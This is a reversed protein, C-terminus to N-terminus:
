ENYIVGKILKTENRKFIIEMRESAPAHIKVKCAKEATIEAIYTNKGADWELSVNLQGRAQLNSISGKKWRSPLAPFLKIEDRASFLLMEYVAATWGMNADIQFPTSKGFILDSDTIGMQRYDNHYTFFNKGICSRAMIDLCEAATDGDGLRANINAMHSLSWGTQDKLGIVLRKDAAIKFAKYLEPNDDQSVENGPFVPYLHSQHRHFYNDSFDPHMWEKVAGDENIQYKPLNNIIEQWKPIRDSNINYETCSNILNNLVEKIVAIDMTANYTIRACISTDTKYEPANFESPWNEPSISPCVTYKGAEDKYLFDEYFDAIELMFPIAREILFEEDGIYLYYDYFHQALWGAGSIWNIIWSGSHTSLGTDPSMLSPIFIGRCGYLKKANERFDDIYSSYFDIVGLLTESIQGPLSQWYNMQLNENIMFFCSWPPAYDGNWIGQLNSPLGGPRSSCILLYRGYNAMKEVLELPAEGAYAKLLLEETSSNNTNTELEFCTRNYLESHCKVHEGFLIDFCVPLTDLENDLREFASKSTEYVFFKVLILVEDANNVEIINENIFIKGGSIVKASIGFERGNDTDVGNEVTYKGSLHLKDNVAERNFAIPPVFQKGKDLADALDHPELALSVNISNAKSASIRVVCTDNVRSVFCDRTYQIDGDTWQVSACSTKLNLERSYNKFPKKTPMEICLDGTPHYSACEGEYGKETMAKYYLDNAELYKKEEMLKRLEFLKDSIDSLENTVGQYWLREHNLLIREKNVRGYPMAGIAGNGVPLADRWWGAATLMKLIHSNQSM